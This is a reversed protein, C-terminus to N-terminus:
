NIFYATKMLYSKAHMLLIKGGDELLCDKWSDLREFDMLGKFSLIRGEM